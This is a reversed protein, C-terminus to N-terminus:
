WRVFALRDCGDSADLKPLMTGDLAREWDLERRPGALKIQFGATETRKGARSVGLSLDHRYVYIGRPTYIM